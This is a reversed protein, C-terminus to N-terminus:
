QRRTTGGSEFGDEFLLAPLDILVRVQTATTNGDADEATLTVDHVGGALASVALALPTGTGLVGALSSSWSLAEGTLAGDEPDYAIAELVLAQGDYFLQGNPPDLIEASPANGAVVASGDSEDTATLLGDSAQVRFRASSTGALASRAVTLSTEPHRAALASWTSGGDASWQVLYSLPDLDADSASWTVDVTERDLQEGGNPSRLQVTPAHASAHRAALQKKGELLEVGVVTEPSGVEFFFSATAPDTGHGEDSDPAFSLDETGGGARQVRLTYPGPEPADPTAGAAVTAFPAFSATVAVTDIAGQVVL